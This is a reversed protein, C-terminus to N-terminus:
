SMTSLSPTAAVAYAPQLPVLPKDADNNSEAKPPSADFIRGGIGAASTALTIATGHLLEAANHRDGQFIKAAMVKGGQHPDRKEIQAVRLPHVDSLSAAHPHAQVVPLVKGETTEIHLDKPDVKQQILLSKLHKGDQGIFTLLTSPPHDKSLPIVDATVQSTTAPAIIKDKAADGIIRDQYKGHDAANARVAITEDQGTFVTNQTGGTLIDGKAGRLIGGETVELHANGGKDILEGRTAIVADFPQRATEVYIPKYKPDSVAIFHDKDSLTFPQTLTVPKGNIQTLDFTNRTTMGVVTQALAEIDSIEIANHEYAIPTQEGKKLTDAYQLRYTTKGPIIPEEGYIRGLAIVDIRTPTIDTFYHGPRGPVPAPNYGGAMVTYNATIGPAANDSSGPLSMKEIGVYNHPPTPHTLGSGHMFEHFTTDAFHTNTNRPGPNLTVDVRKYDMLFPQRAELTSIGETFGGAGRHIFNHVLVGGKEPLAGNMLYPHFKTGSSGNLWDIAYHLYKEEQTTFPISDSDTVYPNRKIDTTVPLRTDGKADLFQNWPNHNGPPSIAYLARAEVPFAYEAFEKARMERTAADATIFHGMLTKKIAAERHKGEPTDTARIVVAAAAEPGM